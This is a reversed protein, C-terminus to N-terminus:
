GPTRAITSIQSNAMKSAQEVGSDSEARDDAGDQDVTAEQDERDSIPDVKAAQKLETPNPTQFVPEKPSVNAM